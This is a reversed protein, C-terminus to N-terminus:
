SAVEDHAMAMALEFKTRKKPLKPPEEMAPDNATSTVARGNAVLSPPPQPESLAVATSAARSATTRTSHLSAPLPAAPLFDLVSSSTAATPASAQLLDEVEIMTTEMQTPADVQNASDLANSGRLKERQRLLEARVSAIMETRSPKRTDTAQRALAARQRQFRGAEVAPASNTEVVKLAAFERNRKSHTTNATYRKGAMKDARGGLIVEGDEAEGDAESDSASHFVDTVDDEPDSNTAEDTQRVSSSRKAKAAVNKKFSKLFQSVDM